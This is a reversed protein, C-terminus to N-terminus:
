MMLSAGKGDGVVADNVFNLPRGLFLFVDALYPLEDPSFLSIAHGPQGARAV